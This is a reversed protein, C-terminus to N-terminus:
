IDQARAWGHARRPIARQRQGALFFEGRPDERVNAFSMQEEDENKQHLFKEHSDPILDRNGDRSTPRSRSRCSGIYQALGIQPQLIKSQTMTPSYKKTNQFLGDSDPWIYLQIFLTAFADDNRAQQKGVEGRFMVFECYMNSREYQTCNQRNKKKRILHPQCSHVPWYAVGSVRSFSLYLLRRCSVRGFPFLLFLSLVLFAAM